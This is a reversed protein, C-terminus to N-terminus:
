HLHEADTVRRAALLSEYDELTDIDWRIGPDAVELYHIWEPRADIVEKANGSEPWCLMRNVQDARLGVPHGRKDGFRPIVLPYKESTTLEAIKFVTEPQVAPHDVLTFLVAGNLGTLGCRLSSFQGREPDPNVMVETCDLESCGRRLLTEHYGLVVRVKSCVSGMVAILRDLFTFGELDLLAKPLGLSSEITRSSAGAALILGTVPLRRADSLLLPSL